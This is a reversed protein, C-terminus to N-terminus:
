EIFSDNITGEVYAIPITLSKKQEETLVSLIKDIQMKLCAANDGRIFLGAWDDNIKLAGTEIREDEELDVKIKRIM